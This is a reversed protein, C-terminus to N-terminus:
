EVSVSVSYGSLVGGPVPACHHPLYCEMLFVVFLVLGCLFHLAIALSHPHYHPLSCSPADSGGVSPRSFPESTAQLQALRRTM